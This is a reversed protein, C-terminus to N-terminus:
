ANRKGRKGEIPVIEPHRSQMHRALQQFTRNCCPCVGAGARTMTRKLEREVKKRATIAEAEARWAASREDEARAIQQQLIDRERRLRDAESEKYAAGHGNPCYFRQKDERRRRDFEKTVAYMVDCSWCRYLIMEQRIAFRIETM